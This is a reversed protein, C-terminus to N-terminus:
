GATPRTRLDLVIASANDPAGLRLVEAIIEDAAQQPSSASRCIALMQELPLVESVGDSALVMFAASGDIQRSEIEPLASLVSGLGPLGLARTLAIGGAGDPTYVRLPGWPVMEGSDMVKMERRVGGGAAEIRRVEAPDDPHHPRILATAGEGDILWAPSDGLWALHLMGDRLVAVTATSGSTVVPDLRRLRTQLGEFARTIAQALEDMAGLEAALMLAMGHAAFTSSRDGRLGDFVALITASGTEMVATADEMASRQRGTTAAIGVREPVARPSPTAVQEPLSTDALTRFVEPFDPRMEPDDALCRAALEGLAPDARWDPRYGESVVKRGFAEASLAGPLGTAVRPWPRAGGHAVEFMLIGFAYIDVRRDHPKWALLEPAMHFLSGVPEELVAGSPLHVARDFDGVRVEPVAGDRFVLVNEAKLDRHVIGRAHLGAMAAAIQALIARATPVPPAVPEGRGDRLFRGLEGFPAYDYARALHEATGSVGVLGVLGGTGGGAGLRAYADLEATVTEAKEWPTLKWIIGPRARDRVLVTTNPLKRGVPPPVPGAHPLSLVQDPDAPLILHLHPMIM